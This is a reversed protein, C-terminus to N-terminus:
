HAKHTMDKFIIIAVFRLRLGMVIFPTAFMTVFSYLEVVAQVEQSPWGVFNCGQGDDEDYAVFLFSKSLAGLIWCSAIM